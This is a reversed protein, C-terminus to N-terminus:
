PIAERIAVGHDFRALEVGALDLIVFTGDANLAVIRKGDGTFTALDISAVGQNFTAIRTMRAEASSWLTVNGIRDSSLLREPNTPDFDIHVVDKDAIDLQRPQTRDDPLM